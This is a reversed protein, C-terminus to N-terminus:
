DGFGAWFDDDEENDNSLSAAKPPDVVEDNRAFRGRIRPRTDALTKRCVYKITKNFNRQARKARYKLIKEKKEEPSCRVAKVNHEGVNISNEIALPSSFSRSYSGRVRTSQSFQLDGTSSVRRIQGGSFSHQPLDMWGDSFAHVNSIERTEDVFDNRKMMCKNFEDYGGEYSDGYGRGPELNERKVCELCDYGLQGEMPYSWNSRYLTLNELQQCPPSSSYWFGGSSSGDVFLASCMDTEDEVDNQFRGASAFIDLSNDPSASDGFPFFPDAPPLLEQLEETFFSM